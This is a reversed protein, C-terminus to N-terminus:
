FSLERLLLGRARNAVRSAISVAPADIVLNGFLEIPLDSAEAPLAGPWDLTVLYLANKPRLGAQTEPQGAGALETEVTGGYQGSLGPHRLQEVAAPSITSVTLGRIIETGGKAYFVASAGIEIRGRQRENVYAYATSKAGDKPGFWGIATDAPVWDGVRLQAAQDPLFVGDAEALIDMEDRDERLSAQQVSLAEDQSILLLRRERREPDGGIADLEWRLRARRIDTVALQHVLDPAAFSAIQQGAQVTIQETPFETQLQGDASTFVQRLAPPAVMGPASVQGQWPVFIVALVTALLALSRLGPRRSRIMHRDRYAHWVEKGFPWLIVLLVQLALLFLGLLKFVLAYVILSIAIVIVVRYLAVAFGYLTVTRRRAAPMQDPAVEEIGVLNRRSWWRLLAAARPQLNEIRWLDSLLFYGDFRMLPNLNVFLTTLWATTALFFCADRLPGPDLIAWALGAYAALSLEVIMGAGGIALRKRRDPLRWADSVDTFLVPWFVIFAVGMSTVNVGYRKAMVAHGLEHAIKALILTLGFWLWASPELLAVASATFEDFRRGILYLSLLLCAATLYALWPRLLLNWFPLTRDLWRDPNVLPIKLSLYTRALKKLSWQQRQWQSHLRETAQPGAVLLLNNNALFEVLQEVTGQDADIPTEDTIAEILPAVRGLSWRSLLEFERWGLRFYRNAMPDFLTWTPRGDLDQPGASLVLDDRLPPLTDNATPAIAIGAM